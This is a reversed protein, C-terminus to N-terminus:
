RATAQREELRRISDILRSRSMQDKYIVTAMKSQLQLRDDPTLDKATLVIIPIHATEPRRKLIEAIEFGNLDPMILDLIIVDPLRTAALRVGEPGSAALDIEYGLLELDERLLNLLSADDDILLVRPKEEQQPRTLQRVRDIFRRRDFPKLFYDDAGLALGLARNDLLSVIVVPIERTSEEAKLTKLVEWGDAGPLVIDLTIAVPRVVKALRIAEEGYRARVPIYGSSHLDRSLIAYAADDDEVVLVRDGERPFVMFQDQVEDEDRTGRFRVPFSVSFTSGRGPASDISVSGHQLEVFRKVLALGLGTGSVDQRGVGEVQRFEEFVLEQEEDPIGPGHDTVSIVVLGGDSAPLHRGSIKVASQQPSFKVANSLLNYLVQKFKPLDTEIQPLDEPMDIEFEIGHKAAQGRMVQCVSHVVGQVGFKEPFVGMKGAEIKSLDLVDNIISLLHQGASLIHKQFEAYRPEIKGELRDILIESFGIISNMPTRLEHSMNALFRSKLRDSEIIRRNAISLQRTRQDLEATVRTLEEVKRSEAEKMARILARKEQLNAVGELFFVSAGFLLAIRF